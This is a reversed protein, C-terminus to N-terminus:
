NRQDYVALFKIIEGEAFGAQRLITSAYEPDHNRHRRIFIRKTTGSQKYIEMRDSRTKYSFGKSRIANVLATNPVVRLHASCM